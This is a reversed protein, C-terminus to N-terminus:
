LCGEMDVVLGVWFLRLESIFLILHGPDSVLNAGYPLHALESQKRRPFRPKGYPFM